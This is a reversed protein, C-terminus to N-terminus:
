LGRVADRLGQNVTVPPTWGLLARTKSIDVRLSGCLRRAVDRKGAVTAAAELMWAPVPLLRSPRGMARALRELLEATSLDEGDGALFTENAAAPHDICTIILDVLNDVAVLSRRNHRIAGLPLPVGKAVWRMMTAFNGKVGPGYVLPPRITVVEMDTQAAIAKLGDEAERKSIAYPDVPNPTDDAQFATGVATEEGLVKVSSLFIFRRVGAEAAQRALTLTGEVNTSRYRVLMSDTSGTSQVLAACHVICDASDLTQGWQTQANIDSVIYGQPLPHRRTVPRVQCATRILRLRLASGIFGNAGTIMTVSKM